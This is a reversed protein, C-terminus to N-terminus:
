GPKTWSLDLDRYMARMDTISLYRRHETDRRGFVVLAVIFQAYVTFQGFRSAGRRAREAVLMARIGQRDIGLESEGTARTRERAHAVFTQAFTSDSFVGYGDVKLVGTGRSPADFPGDALGASDFSRTVLNRLVVRPRLSDVIVAFGALGGSFVRGCGVARAHRYVLRLPARGYPLPEGLLEANRPSNTARLYPCSNGPYQPTSM